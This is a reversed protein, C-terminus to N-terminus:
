KGHTLRIIKYDRSDIIMTFTGGLSGKPLTGGILWYQDILFVDYPKQKEINEKGYIDFLIFESFKIVKESTLIEKNGIVNHLTSDKLTQNIINEAQEKSIRRHENDDQSYTLCTTLIFIVVLIHKM